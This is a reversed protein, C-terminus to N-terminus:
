ENEYDKERINEIGMIQHINGVCQSVMDCAGQMLELSENKWGDYEALLAYMECMQLGLDYNHKAMQEEFKKREM